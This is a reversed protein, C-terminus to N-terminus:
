IAVVQREDVVEGWDGGCGGVLVVMGVVVVLVGLIGRRRVSGWGVAEGLIVKPRPPAPLEVRRGGGVERGLVV